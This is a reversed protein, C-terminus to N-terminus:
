YGETGAETGVVDDNAGSNGCAVLSSCMSLVLMASVLKKKM